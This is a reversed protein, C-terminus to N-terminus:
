PATTPAPLSLRSEGATLLHVGSEPLYFGVSLATTSPAPANFVLTHADAVVEGASWLSTPYAGSRPMEDVQALSAGAEPDRAHIFIVYDRDMEALAQWYFIVEWATDTSQVLDYGLLRIKDGNADAFDANIVHSAEPAEFSRALPQVDFTALTAAVEGDLALDLRYEGAPLLRPLRVSYVGEVIEGKRWRSFGYNAAPEGIHFVHQTDDLQLGIMRDIPADEAAQWCIRVVIESGPLLAEGPVVNWGLVNVGELSIRDGASVGSCTPEVSAAVEAVPAVTVVSHSRVELGAFAENELRPLALGQDPDYFGVSIQYDGGPPTGMPPTLVLQDLVLEGHTWDGPAYHFAMTRDWEGTEPHVLRVIPQLAAYAARPEWTLLIPCPEAVRCMRMPVANHLRVVHAFDAIESEALLSERVGAVADEVLRYIVLGSSGGPGPVVTSNWAATLELPWPAPPSLSEPILYAGDGQVPLVVTAGGTLWRAEEYHKALAAVTPHRHHESAIYVTPPASDERLMDLAQAALAMEGDAARFLADSGAWDRYALGSALGGSVLLVGAVPLRWRAKPLLALLSALGWAVFMALFPYIGVLRLNSPTIEATALASPLLMIGVATWVLLRGAGDLADRRRAVGMSIAGVLALLASVGDLVPRGPINFRVYPDGSGPLALAQLCMVFGRAADQWTSAAVQTVRTMFLEPQRLYLFGVPAFVVIAAALVSVLRLVLRKWNERASRFLLWLVSLALPVPFLRAALYTYGALGLCAGAGLLWPWSGSRLGRWLAAVTLAQMLPQSIARFGYRSLLIHPFAVAMWAAAFLALQRARPRASFLAQTASFTAAVTLIGLMAAGLRLGWASGGTIAVWLAAAYFFLVEKGTYARIFLPLYDGDAIQRSLILNAAEDYHLGLPLEPLAALRLLSAVLLVLLM